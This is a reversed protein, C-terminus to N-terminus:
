TINVKSNYFINGRFGLITMEM